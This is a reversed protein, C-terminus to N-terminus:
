FAAGEDARPLEPNSCRWAVQDGLIRKDAESFDDRNPM